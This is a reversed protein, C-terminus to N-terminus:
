EDVSDGKKKKRSLGLKIFVYSAYGIIYIIVGAFIVVLIGDVSYGTLFSIFIALLYTILAPKWVVKFEQGMQKLVDILM